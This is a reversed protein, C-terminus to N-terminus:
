VPNRILAANVKSTRHLKVSVPRNRISSFHIFDLQLSHAYLQRNKISDMSEDKFPLFSTESHKHVKYFALLLLAMSSSGIIAITEVMLYCYM